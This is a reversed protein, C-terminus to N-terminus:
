IGEFAECGEHAREGLGHHVPEATVETSHAGIVEINGADHVPQLVGVSMEPPLRSTAGSAADGDSQGQPMRTVREIFQIIVVLRSFLLNQLRGGRGAGGSTKVNGGVSSGTPM